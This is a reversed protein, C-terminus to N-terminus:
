EDDSWNDSALIVAIMVGALAVVILAAVVILIKLIMRASDYGTQSM